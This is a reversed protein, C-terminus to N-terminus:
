QHFGWEWENAPTDAKYGEMLISGVFEPIDAEDIPLCVMLQGNEYVNAHYVHEGPMGNLHIIEDGKYFTHSDM